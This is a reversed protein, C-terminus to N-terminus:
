PCPSLSPTEEFLGISAFFARSRRSARERLPAASEFARRALAHARSLAGPESGVLGADLYVDPNTYERFVVDFYSAVYNRAAERTAAPWRPSWKEFLGKIALRGFALHRVEDDHHMQNIERVISLVNSDQAIRCNFYDVVDEFILVKSFFLFAEEGPAYDRPFNLKKDPYIKGAYRLCFTAFYQLHKNEEDIFHHLYTWSPEAFPGYLNAGLGGLLAREGHINLSFFNILEFFALRKKREVSESELCGTSHLPSLEIPMCWGEAALEEPWTTLQPLPAFNERSLQTLRASLRNADV